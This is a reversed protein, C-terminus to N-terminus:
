AENLSRSAYYIPDERGNEDLKSLVARVATSSADTAVLFPRSFDPCSLVPATPLAQKPTEFSKQM